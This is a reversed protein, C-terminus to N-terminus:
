LLEIKSTQYAEKNKQKVFVSKLIFYKWELEFSKKKLKALFAFFRLNEFFYLCIRDKFPKFRLILLQRLYFSLLMFPLNTFSNSRRQSALMSQFVTM